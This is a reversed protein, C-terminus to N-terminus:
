AGSREKEIKKRLDSIEDGIDDEEEKVKTKTIQSVHIIGRIELDM